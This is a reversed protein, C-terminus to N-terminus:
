GLRNVSGQSPQHAIPQNSNMCDLEAEVFAIFEERTRLKTNIPFYRETVDHESSGLHQSVHGISKAYGMYAHFFPIARSCLFPRWAAQDQLRYFEFATWYFKEIRVPQSRKLYPTQSSADHLLLLLKFLHFFNKKMALSQRVDQYEQDTLRKDSLNFVRGSYHPSQLWDLGPGLHHARIQRCFSLYKYDYTQVLQKKIDFLRIIPAHFQHKWVQWSERALFNNFLHTEVHYPSVLANAASRIEDIHGEVVQPLTKACGAMHYTTVGLFIISRIMLLQKIKM